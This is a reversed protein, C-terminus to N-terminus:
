IEVKLSMLVSNLDFRMKQCFEPDGAFIERLSKSYESPDVIRDGWDRPDDYIYGEMLEDGGHGGRIRCKEATDEIDTDDVPVKLIGWDQVRVSIAGNQLDCEIFMKDIRFRMWSGMVTRRLCAKAKKKDELTDGYANKMLSLAVRFHYGNIYVRFWRVFIADKEELRLVEVLLARVLSRMIKTRFASKM